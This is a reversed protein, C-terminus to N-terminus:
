WDGKPCALMHGQCAVWEEHKALHQLARAHGAEVDLEQHLQVVVGVGRQGVLLGLLLHRGGVGLHSSKFDNLFM